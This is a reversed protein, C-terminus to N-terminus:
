GSFPAPPRIRAAGHRVGHRVVLAAAGGAAVASVLRRPNRFDPRKTFSYGELVLRPTEEGGAPPATFAVHLDMGFETSEARFVRPDDPDAPYLRLGRRMAPVPTPPRLM